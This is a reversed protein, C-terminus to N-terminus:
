RRITFRFDTLRSRQKRTGAGRQTKTRTREPRDHWLWDCQERCAELYAPTVTFMASTLHNGDTRRCASSPSRRGRGFVQPLRPGMQTWPTEGGCAIEASREVEGQQTASCSLWSDREDHARHLATREWRRACGSDPRHEPTADTEDLSWPSLWRLRELRPDQLGPTLAGQRCANRM